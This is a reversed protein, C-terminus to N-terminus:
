EGLYYENVSWSVVRTIVAEPGHEAPLTWRPYNVGTARALLEKVAKIVEGPPEGRARLARVYGETACRLEGMLGDDDTEAVRRALESLHRAAVQASPYPEPDRHGSLM